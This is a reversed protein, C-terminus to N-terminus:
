DHYIVMALLVDSKIIKIDQVKGWQIEKIFDNIKNQLLKHNKERLIEVKLM